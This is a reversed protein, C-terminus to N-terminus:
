NHLADLLADVVKVAAIAGAMIAILICPAELSRWVAGLGAVRWPRKPDTSRYRCPTAAYRRRASEIFMTFM